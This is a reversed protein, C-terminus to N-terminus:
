VSHSRHATATHFYDVAKTEANQSLKEFDAYGYIVSFKIGYQAAIKGAKNADGSVLAVPKCLKTKGFAPLIQNIALHGLGVIAFGIRQDPAEFPGPAKDAPETYMDQIVPLSVYDQGNPVSRQVGQAM